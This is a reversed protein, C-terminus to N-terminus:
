LKGRRLARRCGDIEEQGAEYDEIRGPEPQAEVRERRSIPLIL